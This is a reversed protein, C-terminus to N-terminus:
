QVWAPLGLQLTKWIVEEQFETALAKGVEVSTDVTWASNPDIRLPVGPGFEKYMQKVTEMELEPDLVGAKFKVSGFGYLSIMKKTQAVLSEPSLHRVMNM